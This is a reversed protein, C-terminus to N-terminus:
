PNFPVYKILERLEKPLKKFETEGLKAVKEYADMGKHLARYNANTMGAKTHFGARALNEVTHATLQGKKTISLGYQIVSVSTGNAMGDVEYTISTQFPKGIKIQALTMLAKLGAADDVVSSFLSTNATEGQLVKVAEDVIEANDRYFAQVYDVANQLSYRDTKFGLGQAIAAHM